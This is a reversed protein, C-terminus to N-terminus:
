RGRRCRFTVARLKECEDAWPPGGDEADHSISLVDLKAILSDAARLLANREDVIREATKGLKELARHLDSNASM